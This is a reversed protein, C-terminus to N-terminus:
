PVVRYDSWLERLATAVGGGAQWSRADVRGGSVVAKPPVIPRRARPSHEKDVFEPGVTRLQIDVMGASAVAGICHRLPRSPTDIRRFEDTTKQFLQGPVRERTLNGGFSTTGL